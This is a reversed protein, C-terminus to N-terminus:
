FGGTLVVGGGDGDLWVGVPSPERETGSPRTMIWALGAGVLVGGAALGIVGIRGKSSAKDRQDLFEDYTAADDKKKDAAHAQIIFVTGVGLGVVGLGLLSLGVPNKWRSPSGPHETPPEVPTVPTIPEVVEPEVPKVPEVPKQKALVDNCEAVKQTIATKNEAPLDFAALKEWLAIARDCHDLKREAQAWAFLTEPDQEIAFSEDLAASAAEYDGATYAKVGRDFAAKAEPKQPAAAAPQAGLALGLVLVVVAVQRASGAHVTLGRDM